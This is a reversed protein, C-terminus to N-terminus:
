STQDYRRSQTIPDEFTGTVLDAVRYSCSGDLALDGVQRVQKKITEHRDHWCGTRKTQMPQIENEKKGVGNKEILRPIAMPYKPPLPSGNKKVVKGPANALNRSYM